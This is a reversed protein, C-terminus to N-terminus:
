KANNGLCGSPIADGVIHGQVYQAHCSAQAGSELVLDIDDLTIDTCSGSQSCSFTIGEQTASTGKINNYKVNSIKVASGQDKCASETDGTDCYFQNIIIPNSVNEMQVNEYTIDSAMGSGGPWTKIRLGNTTSTLKANVVHISHVDAKANGRGLSGISIGHGPGCTIDSIEINSSGDGIGVCDDGTGITSDRIVINTSVFTDIGDTNPSSEPAQITIGVIQVSECDTLTVHFQPSDTVKLGSLTSGKVDNFQIAAPRSKQKGWWNNGKGDITGKGTLTFQQLHQFLLWVYNSKWSSPDEPAAITGDVQFTFGPQCPGQFDLNNVLFTKGSPVLLTASSAKCAGNWAGTFAETDDHEGDGVAGYNEVSFSGGNSALTAGQSRTSGSLYRNSATLLQAEVAMIILNLALFVLNKLHLNQGLRAMSRMLLQLM